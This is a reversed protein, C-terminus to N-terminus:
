GEPTIDFRTEERPSFASHVMFWQARIFGLDRLLDSFESETFKRKDINRDLTRLWRSDYQVCPLLFRQWSTPM